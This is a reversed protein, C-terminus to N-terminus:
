SYTHQDRWVRWVSFAGLILVVVFAFADLGSHGGGLSFWGLDAILLGVAGYFTWQPRRGWASIDGRRERWLMYLFFAIAIFFAIRALLFLATLTAELQLVVIVVAILAVIVLGRITPNVNGLWRRM